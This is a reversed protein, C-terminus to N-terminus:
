HFKAPTYGAVTSFLMKRSFISLGNPWGNCQTLIESAQLKLKDKDISTFNECLTWMDTHMKKQQSPNLNRFKPGPVSYIGSLSLWVKRFKDSYRQRKQVKAWLNRSDQLGARLSELFTLIHPGINMLKSFAPNETKWKKAMDLGNKLKPMCIEPTKRPSELLTWIHPGFNM